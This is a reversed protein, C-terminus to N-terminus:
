VVCRRRRAARQLRHDDSVVTLQRPASDQRIVEEILDDAQEHRVAYRVHVGQYIESDAVGAPAKAADFVVTVTAAEAGYAGSLLGLLHRRAKELAAPGGRRGRVWGLAYLLNYGDILVPM